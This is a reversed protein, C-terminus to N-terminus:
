TTLKVRPKPPPATTHGAVRSATWFVAEVVWFLVLWLQVVVAPVLLFVLAPIAVLLFLGVEGATAGRLGSGLRVAAWMMWRQPLSVGEEHLARRFLGDADARSVEADRCLYDHLIAAKTFVGYRPILWVLARPVSAFDTRFGEPVVFLDHRGRYEIPARVIWSQADIEEVVLADGSFAM